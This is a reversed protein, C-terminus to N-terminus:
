KHVAYGCVMGFLSQCIQTTNKVMGERQPDDGLAIILEEAIREINKLKEDSFLERM